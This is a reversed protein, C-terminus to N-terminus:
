TAPWGAPRGAAVFDAFESQAVGQNVWRDFAASLHARAFNLADAPADCIAVPTDPSEFDSGFGYIDVTEVGLDPVDFLWVEIRGSKIPRLEVWRIRREGNVVHGGLFQELSKGRRFAGEIFSAAVYRM